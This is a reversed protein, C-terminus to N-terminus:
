SGSRRRATLCVGPAPVACASSPFSAVQSSKALDHAWTAAPAPSPARRASRVSAWAEGVVARRARRKASRKGAARRTVQSGAPSSLTNAPMSCAVPRGIRGTWWKSCAVVM